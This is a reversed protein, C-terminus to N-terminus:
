GRGGSSSSPAATISSMEPVAPGAVARWASTLIVADGETVVSPAGFAMAADLLATAACDWDSVLSREGEDDVVFATPGLLADARDWVVRYVLSLGNGIPSKLRGIGAALTRSFDSGVYVTGGEVGSLWREWARSYAETAQPHRLETLRRVAAPDLGSAFSLVASVSEGHEGFLRSAPVEDIVQVAVARTYHASPNAQEVGVADLVAVQWLKGPWRAIVASEISHDVVIWPPLRDPKCVIVGPVAGALVGPDSDPVYVFGRTLQM